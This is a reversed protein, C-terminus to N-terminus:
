LQYGQPAEVLQRSELKSPPVLKAQSTRRQSTM